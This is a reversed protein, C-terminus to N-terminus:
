CSLLICEYILTVCFTYWYNHRITVTLNLVLFLPEKVIEMKILHSPFTM